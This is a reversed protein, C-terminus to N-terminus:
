TRRRPLSLFRREKRSKERIKAPSTRMKRQSMKRRVKRNSNRTRKRRRTRAGEATSNRLSTMLTLTM